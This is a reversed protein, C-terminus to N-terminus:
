DLMEISAIIYRFPGHDCTNIGEYRLEKHVHTIKFHLSDGSQYNSIPMKDKHVRIEQLLLTKRAELEGGIIFIDVYPYTSKLADESAIKGIVDGSYVDRYYDVEDTRDSCSFTFASLLMVLLFLIRKM